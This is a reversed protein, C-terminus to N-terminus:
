GRDGENCPGCVPRCNCDFCCKRSYFTRCYSFDVYCQGREACCAGAEAKPVFATLMRDAMKGLMKM